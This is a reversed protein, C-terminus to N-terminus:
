KKENQIATLVLLELIRKVSKRVTERPLSGDGLARVVSRTDGFHMKLDHGARLEKVHVSDNSFDTMLVGLYGFDERMVGRCIVPDECVKTGNIHNYSTMISYPNSKKIVIEFGRMYIERLARASVRSNSRMRQYETNNAAFHKVTAAVDKEQVGNIIASAIEGSVVPDESNYEFNRGCCPNRHINIAPALWVDINYQHAEEGIARGLERALATNFSSALMTGSPYVTTNENLRLGVPGDSWRAEPIGRTPMYGIRGEANGCSLLALEEDSFSEVFDNMSLKRELVDRFDFGHRRESLPRREYNDISDGVMGTVLAEKARAEIKVDTRTCPSFEFYAVRPTVSSVSVISLFVDGKPFALRIPDSTNYHGKGTHTLVVKEIDQTVNSVLFSFTDSLNLDPHRNEYRLRVDYYGAKKVNLHYMAYRGPTHMRALERGSKIVGDPDYYPKNFVWLAAEVYRGGQMYSADTADVVTPEDNKELTISRIAFKGDKKACFTIETTGMPLIIEAGKYHAEAEIMPLGNLLIEYDAEINPIVHFHTRYMGMASVSLRYTVKEGAHLYEIDGDCSYFGHAPIRNPKNPEIPFGLNPDPSICPLKEYSGDAKLREPLETDMHVCTKIVKTEPNEYAGIKTLKEVNNGLYIGYEGAAMVWSDRTGLVGTDDFSAMDSIPIVLSLYSEEGPELLETKDFARLEFAPTGLASAPSSTYLMVVEKGARKGTNKVSIVARAKGSTDKDCEFHACKIEFNTYSLGHGFPYLVSNKMYPFTEFYRYGVFIDENYNQIIGSRAGFEYSCPYDGYHRAITDTLKASPSVKGALINGLANGGEMGPLNLLLVAKIEDRETFSLDILNGSNVIVIVKNFYRCVSEMLQKEESSLMYDGEMYVVDDNEGATRGLVVIAKEAGRLSAAEVEEPTIPMEPHIHSGSGWVGFSPIPNEKEWAVYQEKLPEDLQIGANQIGDLINVEYESLCFASGTGCKITNIQTRGFIAVKEKGLPLIGDKNKLLVIGEEAIERTLRYREAKNKYNM